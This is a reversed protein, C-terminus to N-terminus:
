AQKRGMMFLRVGAPKTQPERPGADLHAAYSRDHVGHNENRMATPAPQAEEAQASASERPVDASEPNGEQAHGNKLARAGSKRQGPTGSEKDQAAKSSSNTKAKKAPATANKNRASSTRKIKTAASSRETGSASGTRKKASTTKEKVPNSTATRHPRDNKMTSLTGELRLGRSHDRKERWMQWRTTSRVLTPHALIEHPNARTENRRAAHKQGLDVL